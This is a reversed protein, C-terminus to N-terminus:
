VTEPPDAPQPREPAPTGATPRRRRHWPGTLKAAVWRGDARVWWPTLALHDAVAELYVDEYPAIASLDVDTVHVGTDATIPALNWGERIAAGAVRRTVDVLAGYARAVRPAEVRLVARNHNLKRQVDSLATSIRVREEEPADHRRRRVIFPFECYSTIDAFAAGFLQRQRDARARRGNVMLTIVAIVGAIVAAIVAPAVWWPDTAASTASATASM